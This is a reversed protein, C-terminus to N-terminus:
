SNIPPADGSRSVVRGDDLVILDPAVRRLNRVVLDRHRHGNPYHACFIRLARVYLDRATAPQGLDSCALGLNTLTGAVLVHDPGYARELIRLARECRDRAKEPKGLNRWADGLGDLTVAVRVHDPGYAREFIPLAREFLDRAKEPKGLDSWAAGLNDLTRAVEVHDPGYARELIRLAREFLDRAKEPKGLDRWAAGLNTLTGAVEVHDPGYAAEALELLRQGPPIEARPERRTHSFDAARGLWGAGPEDLRVIRAWAATATGAEGAVHAQFGIRGIAESDDATVAEDLVAAWVAPSPPEEAARIEAVEPHARVADRSNQVAPRLLRAGQLTPACAWELARALHRHDLDEARGLRQQVLGALLAVPLPRSTGTTAWGTALSVVARAVPCDGGPSEYPCDGDGARLRVLLAGVATFAAAIGESFDVDPYTAQARDLESPSPLRELTVPEGFEAAVSAEETAWTKYRTTSITAVVWLGPSRQRCRRLLEATIGGPAFTDVRDLWLILRVPPELRSLVDLDDLVQRLGQPAVPALVVRRTGGGCAVEYATRTVGSAPAGILLLLGQARLRERALADRDRDVYLPLRQGAQAYRDALPSPVVGLVYPDVEDARPAPWVRLCIQAQRLWEAEAAEREQQAQLEAEHEELRRAHLKNLESAAAVAAIVVAAGIRIAAAAGLAALVSQVAALAVTCFVLVSAHPLGRFWGLWSSKSTVM